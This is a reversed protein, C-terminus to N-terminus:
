NNKLTGRISHYFGFSYIGVIGVLFVSVFVAMGNGLNQIGVYVICGVIVLFLCTALKGMYLLNKM